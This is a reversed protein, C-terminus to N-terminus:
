IAGDGVGRARPVGGPAARGRDRHAHAAVRVARRPRTDCLGALRLHPRSGHPAAGSCPRQGIGGIPHVCSLTTTLLGKPAGL